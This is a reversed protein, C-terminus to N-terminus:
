ERRLMGESYGTTSHALRVELLAEVELRHHPRHQGLVVVAPHHLAQLLEVVGRARAVEDQLQGPLEAEAVPHVARHLVGVLGALLEGVPPDEEGALDDVVRLHVPAQLAHTDPDQGGGVIRVRAVPLHSRGVHDEEGGEPHRHRLHLVQPGLSAHQDVRRAAAHEVDPLVDVLVGPLAERGHDVALVVVLLGLGGCGLGESVVAAMVQAHPVLRLRREHRLEDTSLLLRLVDAAAEGM